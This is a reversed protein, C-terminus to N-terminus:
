CITSTGIVNKKKYENTESRNNNICMHLGM